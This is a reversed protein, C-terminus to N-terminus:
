LSKIKEIVDEWWHMEAWLSDDKPNQKIVEETETKQGKAWELLADKRIYETVLSCGEPIYEEISRGFKDVYIKDKM